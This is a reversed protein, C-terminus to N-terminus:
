SVSVKAAHKEMLQKLIRKPVAGVVGDVVDGNQFIALTPISMIGYKMATQQNEDTNLKAVKFRGAFEDALEEVIPGVIRCPGCWPAWFDVLVPLASQLVEQEFNSDNVVVINNSM